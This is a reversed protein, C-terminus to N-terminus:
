SCGTTSGCDTCKLCSGNRVMRLSQCNDCPDGTFGQAVADLIASNRKKLSNTGVPNVVDAVSTTSTPVAGSSFAVSTGGAGNGGSVMGLGGAGAYSAVPTLGPHTITHGRAFGFSGQLPHDDTDEGYLMQEGVIEENTWDPDGATTPRLDEASVQALEDRGLYSVALERFIYDIVSTAMKIRDNGTVLGSPEFRSFVFLDVFKELPVGHQLGVSVAIAFSNMLSRFAAGEKHMDIFLEGVNGDEYEGTRLFVKHGGVTAKQTYGRRRDPLRRRSALYRFVVKEAVAHAKAAAPMDYLEDMADNASDDDGFMDSAYLAALPQSLKSGDRYLANAKIGLRWSLTYARDVDEITADNPMNITKSIAGSIFPQAAAMMRIHAEFAIFRKGDRGCKNACDFVHLHQEMLHPAGEITMSGCAYKNAAAIEEDSFGLASLLNFEPSALAAATLGLATTCFEEGLTYKNFAFKIDFATKVVAEVRALADTDFGNARLTDLNVGPAGELTGYGCTYKIIDDVQEETYGMRDLAPPVSQNIIKFYGGGALKKFKVLAFDPEVGTTDCDMLLGITGTPAIVTTQANRFGHKTGLEVATDWAARAPALLEPPAVDARIGVPLISLGDYDEAAANYAARRHNEMVRLMPEKNKDYGPFTGLQEAMRASEAYSDGTLIASLCGCIARGESSDYAIGMQMLLAGLNAFGLGLTRFEYSLRAIPESPFQAMSVSIELVRTWLAIAHRYAAVDFVHTKPNYFRMLNFSALNCATDDLFMYESCPNSGRIPGDNPCTHWENITSHFQLGPDACAWAAYCIQDWLRRAPLTKCTEGDTRRTLRWDEARQVASMFRNNVRVSNNSNQGAVTSYAECDWDTNFEPFDLTTYGQKAYQITRFIYNDAVAARRARRVARKLALNQKPDYRHNGLSEDKTADMVATLHKRNLRSGTVLSAVKQEETAKWSIYTEIDPHDVDVIVMKAARRTTGGSKIAGAARDGIKLFSMLGSSRGGGSLPEGEGRINSFNSGTGSGYKFLRAERTWLDMIGGDGVLDDGVSQIFCAHPQPREYASTSKKVKGTSEDVYHHGQAPGDIGYAWNLGTNFWQPSNPACFQRALMWRIEDYFATATKEDAFHGSKWGWYTWCGALREFVQRSDAEGVYREDEDLKALAKEDAVSRQLWEPVGKESVRKTRAPLGAKRFYKQAMIDTAVQSWGEPVMVAENLFVVSGDPNRIESRRPVFTLDKYIDKGKSTFLRQVAM